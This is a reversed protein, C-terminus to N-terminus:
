DMRDREKKREETIIYAITVAAAIIITSAIVVIMLTPESIKEDDYVNKEEDPVDPMTTLQSMLLSGYNENFDYAFEAADAVIQEPDDVGEVAIVFAFPNSSNVIGMDVVAKDERSFGYRHTIKSDFINTESYRAPSLQKIPDILMNKFDTSGYVAESYYKALFDIYYQANVLTSNYFEDSVKTYTIEQMSKKLTELGGYEKILDDTAGGDRGFDKTLSRLFVTRLNDSGIDENLHHVGMVLDKFYLYALPFKITEYAEFYRDGNYICEMERNFDYYAFSFNAKGIHNKKLFKNLEELMIKENEPETVEQTVTTGSKEAETESPATTAAVASFSFLMILVLAFALPKYFKM